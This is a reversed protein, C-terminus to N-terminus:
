FINRSDYFSLLGSRLVNQYEMSNLINPCRIITRSGDSKIAGWVMLSKGGHKVVKATYRELYRTNCLRRVYQQRRPNLELRCEDSLIVKNWFTADSKIYESCWTKRRLVQNKALLPKKAAVCGFFSYRRLIRKVTSISFM